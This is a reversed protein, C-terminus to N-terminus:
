VGGHGSGVLSPGTATAKATLSSLDYVLGVVAVGGIMVIMMGDAEDFLFIDGRQRDVVGGTRSSSCAVFAVVVTDEILGM